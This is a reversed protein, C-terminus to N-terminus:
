VRAVAMIHIIVAPSPRGLNTGHRCKSALGLNLADPSGGPGKTGPGPFAAFLASSLVFRDWLGRPQNKNMTLLGRGPHKDVSTENCRFERRRSVSKINM